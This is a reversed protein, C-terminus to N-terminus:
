FCIEYEVLEEMFSLLKIFAIEIHQTYTILLINSENFYQYLCVKLRNINRMSVSHMLHFSKLNEYDYSNFEIKNMVFIYDEFNCSFFTVRNAILDNILSLLANEKTDLKSSLEELLDFLIYNVQNEQLRLEDIYNM